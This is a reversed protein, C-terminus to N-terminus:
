FWPNRVPLPIHTYQSEAPKGTVPNIPQGYSNYQRWYGNPYMQNPPMIRYIGNNGTTGPQRCIYGVGWKSPQVIYDAPIVPNQPTNVPSIFNKPVRSSGLPNVNYQWPFNPNLNGGQGGVVVPPQPYWKRPGGGALGEPDILNIPDGLVYGYLNTDGGDFGIPDKATWKGTEADYDRYGFRTLGTDPDYLGGAFGFPVKFDSASDSLVNGFTDYEVKKVITGDETTVAKLTGVQDYALYYVTGEGTTMKYPMREGAYEFRSTLSDNGDYGLAGERAEGNVKYVALLTTLDEWLYKEVITGNIEKAVRQNNANQYYRIVTGDPKVVSKLEGLTGYTYTTTGDPTTKEALYGDDDYLYTNQGYVVLQDDLTYSASATVGNGTASERNGNADYAYSEVAQGDAKVEILRGRDDYGYDYDTGDMIGGGVNESRRKIKGTLTRESVVNEYKTVGGSQVTQGDIEGYGNYTMSKSFNGDARTIATPLGNLENYTIETNGVETLQGDMNYVYAESGGAYTFSGVRLDSNYGYTLTQNLVGSQVVSTLLSGDYTFDFRENGSEIASPNDGCDYTYTTTAEATAVQALRGGSYTMAISKGSPKTIATIRRQKDYTYTTAKSLPSTYSTRKNVGNYGFAHDTPTPTTLVTMNGNADYVFHTTHADPYTILTRRGLLDYGFGTVKGDPDTVSAPNGEADYVYSTTRTGQMVSTVRGEGDYVYNVSLLDGTQSSLLLRNAADYTLATEVGEASTVTQTSLNYNRVSTVTAGNSTATREVRQVTDGDMTYNTSYTTVKTLGSPETQTVSSLIRRNRVPDRVLVGNETLYVNTTKEGCMTVNSRNDDVANEYLVTDGSPLIKETKLLGNELAYKKYMVVDGAARTVNIDLLSGEVSQGFVWEGQEADVVKVLTGSADFVHLFANGNPETEQTMLHSDYVFGYASTDEYQVEALDGNADVNLYTTQGHPATISTLTGNVDRNFSTTNGFANTLSVLLGQGDYAFTWVTEKTYVDRTQVHRGDADFLYENNGLKAVTYGNEEAPTDVAYLDGGLYLKSGSLTAHNSLSWGYAVTGSRNDDLDSSAYHLGFAAGSIAIDEHFTGDGPSVYSSIQEAAIPSCNDTKKVCRYADDCSVRASQVTGNNEQCQSSREADSGVWRDIEVENMGLSPFGTDGEGCKCREYDVCTLQGSEIVGGRNICQQRKESADLADSRWQKSYTSETDIEPFPTDDQNCKLCLYFEFTHYVDYYRIKQYPNKRRERKFVYHDLEYRKDYNNQCIYMFNDELM